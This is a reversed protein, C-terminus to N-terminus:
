ILCFHFLSFFFFSFVLHRLHVGESLVKQIRAHFVFFVVADLVCVCVCLYCFLVFLLLCFFMSGFNYTAM